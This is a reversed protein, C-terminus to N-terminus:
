KINMSVAARLEQTGPHQARTVGMLYSHVRMITPLLCCLPELHGILRYTEMVISNLRGDCTGHLVLKRAVLYLYQHELRPSILLCQLSDRGVWSSFIYVGQISVDTM